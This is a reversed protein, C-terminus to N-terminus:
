REYGCAICRNDNFDHVHVMQLRTIEFIGDQTNSLAVLLHAPGYGMDGSMKKDTADVVYWGGSAPEFKTRWPRPRRQLWLSMMDEVVNSM